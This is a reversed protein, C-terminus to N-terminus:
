RRSNERENLDHAPPAPPGIYKMLADRVSIGRLGSEVLEGRPSILMITPYGHVGFAEPVTTKERPGLVLQTWPLRNEVVHRRVKEVTDDVSASVMALRNDRSWGDYADKLTPEEAICFGCWTGWFDLLVWKGRLNRLSFQKGDLTTALLDPTVQGVRLTLPTSPIPSVTGLWTEVSIGVLLALASLWRFRVYQGGLLATRRVAQSKHVSDIM